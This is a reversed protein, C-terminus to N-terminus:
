TAAPHWMTKYEIAHELFWPSAVDDDFWADGKLTSVHLRRIGDAVAERATMCQSRTLGAALVAAVERHGALPELLEGVDGTLVNVAGPPVDSVAMAEALLISPWAASRPALLVVRNGPVLAAAVLTVAAILGPAGPTLVLVTGCPEPVTFNHYPGAVANQCGLVQHLKDCWGAMSVLRDVSADVERRAAATSIAQDAPVTLAEIFEERRSEVMEALRYLVQGRLTATARTWAMGATCASEVAERADKRSALACRAVIEGKANEIPFSRGSESRPWAGGIWLKGTKVIELRSMRPHEEDSM